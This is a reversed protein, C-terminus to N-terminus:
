SYKAAVTKAHAMLRGALDFLDKASIRHKESINFIEDTEKEKGQGPDPYRGAWYVFYTLCRLIAEDKTSMGPVFDALEHLRHHKKKKEVEKYADIGLDMLMMGKLAIELSYGVLMLGAACYQSDCLVRVPQPMAEFDPTSKIVSLAAQTLAEAQTLWLVPNKLEDDQISAYPDFDGNEHLAKLMNWQIYAKASYGFPDKGFGERDIEPYIM